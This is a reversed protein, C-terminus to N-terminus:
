LNGSKLPHFYKPLLKLNHTSRHRAERRSRHIIQRHPLVWQRITFIDDTLNDEVSDRFLNHDAALVNPQMSYLERLDRKVQAARLSKKAQDDTGNRGNNQITWLDLLPRIILRLWV